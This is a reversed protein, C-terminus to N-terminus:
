RPQEETSHRLGTGSVLEDLVPNDILAAAARASAVAGSRGLAAGHMHARVVLERMGSRSAVKTLRDVLGPAHPSGAAVAVACSADLVHGHIWQNADPWRVCRREADALWDLADAYDGTAAALLGHGRAAMGEWCPDGVECALAFAHTYCEHARDLRGALREVEGRLSEPWPEFAVWRESRAIDLATDLAFVARGLDGCMVHNRGAMSWSWAAQRRSGGRMALDVSRMLVELAAGYEAMESLNLGRMGLVAARAVDDESLSEARALWQEARQRRGAQIDVFALERSARGAAPGDGVVESVALAEHLVASGEEDRGGVAHVLASGLAILARMRLRDDGVAAAETVSRRLCHLGSEISGASVAAEGAELLAVASARGQDHNRPAGGRGVDAARSLAPSPAVGLERRFLDVCRDVQAVADAHLGAAALCRVLLVQHNEDLPNSEVLRAATGLASRFQGAALQRLSRERLVSEWENAIRRREVHLWTEFAPCSEFTMGTLLEGDVPVERSGLSGALVLAIDTTVGEALVVRVPDGEVTALDGVTRRIDALSWRLAGLPDAADPFLLSALQQRAPPRECLVLYALLAWSKRGRPHPAPAGVSEIGPAGLLRILAAM